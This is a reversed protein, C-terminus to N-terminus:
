RSKTYFNLLPIDVAILFRFSFSPDSDLSLNTVNVERLQPGLQFGVGWTIPLKAWGHLAYLGPAFINQLKIEPLDETTDDGFRFGTVAGIDILPVFISFSGQLKSDPKAGWSAAIGVPASVGLNFKHDKTDGNYELAPSVGVYANLSVNFKSRKKITASGAPLAIAEIATKVEASNEAQAVNAVFTGYKIFDDKWTFSGDKLLEELLISLDLILANYKGENIDLYVDATLRFTKSVKLIVAKDNTNLTIGELADLETITEMFDATSRFLEFYSDLKDGQEKKNKISQVAVDIKEGRSILESIFNKWADLKEIKGKIPKLHTSLPKGFLIEDGHLQYLLGLYIQFTEPDMLKVLDKGELWYRNPDTSQLSNSIVDFLKIGDQIKLLTSNQSNVDFYALKGLAEAPHMGNLLNNILSLGFEFFEINKATEIDKKDKYYTNKKKNLLPELNVLITQLDKQFAERLTNLYNSFLYIEKDIAKLVEFTKPFLARFDKNKEEELFDKFDQFFTISLEQKTREVLFRALGDALNTVNVGGVKSIPLSSEPTDKDLPADLNLNDKLVTHFSIFPNNSEDTDGINIKLQYRDIIDQMSSIEEPPIFIEVKGSDLKIDNLKNKIILADYYANQSFSISSYSAILLLIILKKM